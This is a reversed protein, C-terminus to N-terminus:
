GCSCIFFINTYERQRAKDSGTLVSELYDRVEYLSSRMHNEVEEVMEGLKVVHSVGRAPMDHTRRTQRTLSGGVNM